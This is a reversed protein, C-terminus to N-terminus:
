NLMKRLLVIRIKEKINLDTSKFRILTPTIRRNHGKEQKTNM